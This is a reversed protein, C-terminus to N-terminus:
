HKRFTPKEGNLYKQKIYIIVDTIGFKYEHIYSPPTYGSLDISYHGELDYQLLAPIFHGYFEQFARCATSSSGTKSDKYKGDTGIVHTDCKVFSAPKAPQCSTETSTQIKRFDKSCSCGTTLDNACHGPWCYQNDWACM